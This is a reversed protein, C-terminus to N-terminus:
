REVIIKVNKIARRLGGIAVILNKATMNLEKLGEVRIELSKTAVINLRKVRNEIAISKDIKTKSTKNTSIKSKVINIDKSM